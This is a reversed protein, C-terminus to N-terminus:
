KLKAMEMIHTPRTECCGGLITAGAEKFTKVFESMKEPTLDERQGLFENPNGTKSKNFTNTITNQQVQSLSIM